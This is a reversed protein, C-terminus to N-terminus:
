LSGRARVMVCDQLRALARYGEKELWGERAVGYSVRDFVEWFALLVNQPLERESTFEQLMLSTRRQEREFTNSDSSSSGPAAPKKADEWPLPDLGLRQELTAVAQRYDLGEKEMVWSIPDRSKQCVWCYTSNTAPYYRASPKQDPGHLDCSFQQERHADPVVHYGYGQLIEGLDATRKVRAARAGLRSM